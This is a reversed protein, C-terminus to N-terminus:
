HSVLSIYDEGSDAEAMGHRAPSPHENEAVKNHSATSGWRVTNETKFGPLMRSRFHFVM